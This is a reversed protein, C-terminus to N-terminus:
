NARFANKMERIRGLFEPLSSDQPLGTKDQISKEAVRLFPNTALEQGITSPVTPLGQEVKRQAIEYQEILDRNEGDISLAFRYNSLTYEHGCYVKTDPELTSLIDYLSVFMDLPTGEFFKGCGAIFLCDGTFVVRDNETHCYYCIHGMTHGPTLLCTVQINGINLRHNHEVPITCGSVEDTSGGYIKLNPILNALHLNGGAHDWHKHTTLVKSIQVGEREAVLLVKNPEVPDIAACEGTQEDIILYAYNDSLCPIHVVRM